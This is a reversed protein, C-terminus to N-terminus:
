VLNFWVSGPSSTSIVFHNSTSPQVDKTTLTVEYKKWATTLGTVEASAAAVAGENSEISVHPIYIIELSM